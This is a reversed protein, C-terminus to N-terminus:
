LRYVRRSTRVPDASTLQLLEKQLEDAANMVRAIQMSQLPVTKPPKDYLLFELPVGLADAFTQAQDLTVHGTAEIAAIRSQKLGQGAAELRRGLEAQSWKWDLRFKRVKRAFIASRPEHNDAM